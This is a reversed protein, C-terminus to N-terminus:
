SSLAIVQRFIPGAETDKRINDVVSNRHNLDRYREVELWVEDDSSASVAKGISTSGKFVDGPALQYFESALMGNRRFISALKKQADLFADHNKVPVRYVFFQAHNGQEQTLDIQSM